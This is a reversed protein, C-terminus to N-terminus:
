RGPARHVRSATVALGRRRRSRPRGGSVPVPKKEAPTSSTVTRLAPSAPNRDISTM